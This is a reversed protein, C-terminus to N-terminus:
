CMAASFADCWIKPSRTSKSWRCCKSAKATSCRFTTRSSCIAHNASSNRSKGTMKRRTIARQSRSARTSPRTLDDDEAIRKGLLQPNTSWVITRDHAYVNALLIDPLHAVHDLFEGRTSQVLAPSRCISITWARTLCSAWPPARPLQSHRVEAQAMAQIFQATLMADREVSDRVVFRTSFYGLAGAVTAIILLSIVSFWRLLNFERLPAALGTSPSATKDPLDHELMQM